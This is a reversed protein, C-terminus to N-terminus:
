RERYHRGAPRQAVGKGRRYAPKQCSRNPHSATATMRIATTVNRDLLTVQCSSQLTAAGAQRLGVGRSCKRADRRALHHNADRRAQAIIGDKWVAAKLRWGDMRDSSGTIAFRACLRWRSTWQPPQPLRRSTLGRASHTWRSLSVTGGMSHGVLPAQIIGLQDM